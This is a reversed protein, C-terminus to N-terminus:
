LKMGLWIVSSTAVSVIASVPKYLFSGQGQVIGVHQHELEEALISEVAIVAEEDGQARLDELQHFLHRTVVSEVGSYV